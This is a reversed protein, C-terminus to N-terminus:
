SVRLGLKVEKEPQLYVVGGDTWVGLTLVESVFSAIKKPPFNVVCVVHRGILDEKRYLQTLQSSSTKIGIEPGLDIKLKYTPKKAEPFDDVCIIKGTRIDVKLFDDYALM